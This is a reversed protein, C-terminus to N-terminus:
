QGNSAPPNDTPVSDSQMLWTKIGQVLTIVELAAPEYADVKLQKLMQLLFDKEKQTLDRKQIM